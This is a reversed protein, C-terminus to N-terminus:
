TQLTGLYHNRQSITYVYTKTKYTNLNKRSDSIRILRDWADAWRRRWLSVQRRSLGVQAAIQPNGQRDFALLIIAARQRLQSSATPANQITRLIDHQRETITVKAMKGPMSLIERTTAFRAFGPLELLAILRNTDWRPITPRTISELQTGKEAGNTSLLQKRERCRKPDRESRNAAAIGGHRDAHALCPSRHFPRSSDQSGSRRAASRLRPRSDSRRGGHYLHPSWAWAVAAWFCPPRNPLLKWSKRYYHLDFGPFSKHFIKSMMCEHIRCIRLRLFPGLLDVYPKM